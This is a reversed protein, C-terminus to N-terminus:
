RVMTLAVSLWKAISLQPQTDPAKTIIIGHKKNLRQQDNTKIVGIKEESICRMRTACKGGCLTNASAFFQLNKNWKAYITRTITYFQSFKSCLISLSLPRSLSLTFSAVFRVVCCFFITRVCFLQKTTCVCHFLSYTTDRQFSNLKGDFFLTSACM